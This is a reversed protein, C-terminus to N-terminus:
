KEIKVTTKFVLNFPSEWPALYTGMWRRDPSSHAFAYNAVSLTFWAMNWFALASWHGDMSPQGISPRPTPATLFCKLDLKQFYGNYILCYTDGPTSGFDRCILNDIIGFQAQAWKDIPRRYIPVYRFGYSFGWHRNMENPDIGHASWWWPPHRDLIRYLFSIILLQLSRWGKGMWRNSASPHAKSSTTLTLSVRVRGRHGDM